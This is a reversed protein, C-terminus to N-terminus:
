GKLFPNKSLHFVVFLFRKFFLYDPVFRLLSVFVCGLDFKNKNENKFHLPDAWVFFGLFTIPDM